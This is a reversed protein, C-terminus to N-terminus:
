MHVILDGLELAQSVEASTFYIFLYFKGSPVQPDNIAGM